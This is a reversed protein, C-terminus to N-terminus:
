LIEQYRLVYIVGPRGNGAAHSSSNICAGGGGGNGTLTDAATNNKGNGGPGIGSGKGNGLAGNVGIGGGGGTTGAIVFPYPCNEGVLADRAGTGPVQANEATSGFGGAGGNANFLGGTAVGAAGATNGIGGGGGGASLVGFTTTGGATGNNNGIAGGTGSSGITASISGTLAIVGVSISGSGGGAVSDSNSKSGGGGGGGVAVVYGFGSTSTGTYTETATITDLTGSFNDTLINALKAITVIVNTGTNTYIRVNDAATAVSINVTGSVTVARVIFTNGSFFDVTSVTGSVCTVQYIAPNFTENAKTITQAVPVTISYATAEQEASPVPFVSISM